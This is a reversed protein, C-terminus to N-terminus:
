LAGNLKIVRSARDGRLGSRDSDKSVSPSAPPSLSRAADNVERPSAPPSVSRAAQAEGNESVKTFETMEIVTSQSDDEGRRLAEGQASLSSEEQMQDVRPGSASNPNRDSNTNPHHHSSHLLKGNSNELVEDIIEDWIWIKFIAIGLFSILCILEVTATTWFWATWSEYSTRSSIPALEYWQLLFISAIYSFLLPFSYWQSRKEKIQPYTRNSDIVQPNDHWQTNTQTGESTPIFLTVFYHDLSMGAFCEFVMLSIKAYFYLFAYSSNVESHYVFEGVVDIIVLACLFYYVTFHVGEQLSNLPFAVSVIATNFIYSALNDYAERRFHIYGECVYMHKLYIGLYIFTLALYTTGICIRCILARKIKTKDSDARNLFWDALKNFITMFFNAIKRDLCIYSKHNHEDHYEYFINFIIFNFFSAFYTLFAINELVGLTSSHCRIDGFTQISQFIITIIISLFVLTAYFISSFFYKTHM